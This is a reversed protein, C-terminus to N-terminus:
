KGLSVPFLVNRLVGVDNHDALIRLKLSVAVLFNARGHITSLQNSREGIQQVVHRRIGVGDDNYAAVSFRGAGCQGSPAQLDCVLVWAVEDSLDGIPEFPM